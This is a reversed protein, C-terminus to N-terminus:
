EPTAPPQHGWADARLVAESWERAVFVRQGLTRSVFVDTDDHGIMTTRPLERRVATVRGPRLVGRKCLLLRRDTVVIALNPHGVLQLVALARHGRWLPRRSTAPIVTQVSEDDPVFRRASAVLRDEMGKRV